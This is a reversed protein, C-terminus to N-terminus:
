SRLPLRAAEIVKTPPPATLSQATAYQLCARPAAGAAVRCSWAPVCRSRFGAPRGQPRGETPSTTPRRQGGDHSPPFAPRRQRACSEGVGVLVEITAPRVHLAITSLGQIALWIGNGPNRAELLVILPCSRGLGLGRALGENVSPFVPGCNLLKARPCSEGRCELRTRCTMGAPCLLCHPFRGDTGVLLSREVPRWRQAMARKPTRPVGAVMDLGCWV